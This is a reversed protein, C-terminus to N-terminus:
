PGGQNSAIVVAVMSSARSFVQSIASYAMSKYSAGQEGMKGDGATLSNRKRDEFEHDADTLFGRLDESDCM